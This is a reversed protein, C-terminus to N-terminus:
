LPVSQRGRLVGQMCSIHSRTAFGVNDYGDEEGDEVNDGGDEEGDEVNDDDGDDDGIVPCVHVLLFHEGADSNFM